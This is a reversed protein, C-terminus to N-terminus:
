PRAPLPRRRESSCIVGCHRVEIKAVSFLSRPRPGDFLDACRNPRSQPIQDFAPYFVAREAVFKRFYTGVARTRASAVASFEIRDRVRFDGLQRVFSQVAIRLRRRISEYNEVQQFEAGAVDCPWDLATVVTEESVM